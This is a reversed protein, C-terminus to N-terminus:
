NIFINIRKRERGAYILLAGFMAFLIWAPWALLSTLIPDWLWPHTARGIGAGVNKLTQPALSAIHYGFSDFHWWNGITQWRTLDSTLAIVAALLLIAGVFRLAPRLVGLIIGAFGTILRLVVFAFETLPALIFDMPTERTTSTVDRTRRNCM